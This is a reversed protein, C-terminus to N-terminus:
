CGLPFLRCLPNRMVAVCNRIMQSVIGKAMQSPFSMLPPMHSIYVIKAEINGPEIKAQVLFHLQGAIKKVIFGLIGVEPQRIIPQDWEAVSGWNTRVTIGEITFFRGTVHSLNGSLPDLKWKDLDAIPKQRITAENESRIEEIWTDVDAIDSVDSEMVFASRLFELQWPRIM